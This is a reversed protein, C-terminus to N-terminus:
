IKCFKYSCGEFCPFYLYLFGEKIEFSIFWGNFCGPDIKDDELSYFANGEQGSDISFSCLDGEKIELINESKFELTMNSEVPKFVGSGDGPDFLREILKWKGQLNPDNLSIDDDNYCSFLIAFSILVITIYKKM